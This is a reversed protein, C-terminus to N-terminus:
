PTARLTLSLEATSRGLSVLQRVSAFGQASVTLTRDGMPAAICFRGRRDTRAGLDLDALLVRAGAVPEGNEDHVEGCLLPWDEEVDVSRPASDTVTPTPASTPAAIPVPSTAQARTPEIRAPTRTDRSAPSESSPAASRAAAARPSPAASPTSPAASALERTPAATTPSGAARSRAPKAHTVPKSEEGDETRVVEIRPLRPAPVEPVSVRIVPPMVYLALVVILAGALALVLPRPPPRRAPVNPETNTRAATTPELAPRPTSNERAPARDAAAIAPEPSTPAADPRPRHARVITADLDIAPRTVPAIPPQPAASAAAIPEAVPPPPAAVAPKPASVAEDVPAPAPPAPRPMERSPPRPMERSPPKMVDAATRPPEIPARTVARPTAFGKGLEAMLADLTDHMEANAPTAPEAPPGAVAPAASVPQVADAALVSPPPPAAAPPEVVEARVRRLPLHRGQSVADILQDMYRSLDQLYSEGPDFALLRRLGEEHRRLRASLDRCKECISLHRTVLEHGDDKLSGAFSGDLSASLLLPSLHEGSVGSPEEGRMAAELRLRLGAMRETAENPNLGLARAVEAQPLREFARLALLLRDESPWSAFVALLSQEYQADYPSAEGWARGDPRLTVLAATNDSARRRLSTASKSRALRAITHLPDLSPGRATTESWLTRTVEILLSEADERDLTLALCLRWARRQHHRMLEALASAEGRQARRLLSKDRAEDTRAGPDDPAPM